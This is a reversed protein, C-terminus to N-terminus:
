PKTDFAIHCIIAGQDHLKAITAIKLLAEVGCDFRLQSGHMRLFLFNHRASGMFHMPLGYYPVSVCTRPKKCWIDMHMGVSYPTVSREYNFSKMAGPGAIYITDPDHVRRSCRLSPGLFLISTGVAAFAVFSFESSKGVARFECNWNNIRLSVQSNNNIAVSFFIWEQVDHAAECANGAITLVGDSLHLAICDNEFFTGTQGDPNSFRVWGCFSTYPLQLVFRDEGPYMQFLPFHDYSSDACAVLNVIDQLMLRIHKPRLFRNAVDQLVSSWSFDRM